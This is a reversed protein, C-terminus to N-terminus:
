VFQNHICGVNFLFVSAMNISEVLFQPKTRLLKLFYGGNWGGNKVPKDTKIESHSGHVLYKKWQFYCGVLQHALPLHSVLPLVLQYLIEDIKQIEFDNLIVKFTWIYDSNNHM